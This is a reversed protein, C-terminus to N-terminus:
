FRYSATAQYHSPLEPLVIQAGFLNPFNARFYKEDTLNKGTISFAWNETEYLLGINLLTYSPLKVVQSFSSYVEDVSVVSANIAFGSDFMYTGTFTFINEPVGARRADAETTAEPIGIVQSGYVLAPDIQPMDEAGFFSFRGGNELTNLNIVEMNSYGFTLIMNDTPIWRTEFEFGDTKNTSNTVIAQVNFDTREQEYVSLAMYLTDDLFSGKIGAELLTSTDFAGNNWILGTSINAGQGAIVTSQESATFYPIIGVPTAWSLSATWSVGDVTDSADFPATIDDVSYNATDVFDNLMFLGDDTPLVFETTFNFMLIKDRPLHSEMDITDYRAGLLLNLGSEWTMDVMFAVGLDTYEGIDYESYDCDCRTSLLRRDLATSPGTLDRRDFFENTFDDGHKFDIHRISPSIQM